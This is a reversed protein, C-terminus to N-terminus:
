SGMGILLRQIERLCNVVEISNSYQDYPYLGSNLSAQQIAAKLNESAEGFFLDRLSESIEKKHVSIRLGRYAVDVTKAPLPDKWLVGLNNETSPRCGEESVQM